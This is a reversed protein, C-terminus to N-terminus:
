IGELTTRALLIANIEDNTEDLLREVRKAADTIFDNSDLALVEVYGMLVGCKTPYDITHTNAQAPNRRLAELVGVAHAYPLVLAALKKRNTM